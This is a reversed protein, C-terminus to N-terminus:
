KEGVLVGPASQASLHTDRFGSEFKLGYGVLRDV